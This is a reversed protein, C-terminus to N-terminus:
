NLKTATTKSTTTATTAAVAARLALRHHGLAFIWEAGELFRGSPSLAAADLAGPHWVPATSRGAQISKV